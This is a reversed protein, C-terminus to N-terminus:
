IPFQQISIRTSIEGLLSIHIQQMMMKELHTKQFLSRATQKNNIKMLLPLSLANKMLNRMIVPYNRQNKSSKMAISKKLKIGM